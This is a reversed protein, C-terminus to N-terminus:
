VYYEEHMHHDKIESAEVPRFTGLGVHLTIDLIIVGKEKLKKFIEETFHFGATPAAASGLVKAYVTQYRDKEKLQEHIYPPLPMLGIENIIELFIGKYLMKFIRIGEEKIEICECRLEGNNFSVITGIKVVKANGVLAEWTDNGLDKLLLIEVKAGTEEKTGLLRAPIVKTNNRVIVDGKNFYDVIDSFHKHEITSSKRDLVLMRSSSRDKAPTQAILEKPLDFDFDSTKM